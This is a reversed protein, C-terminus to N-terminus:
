HELSGSLESLYLQSFLPAVSPTVVKAYPSWTVPHEGKQAFCDNIDEHATQQLQVSQVLQTSQVLNASFPHIAITLEALVCKTPRRLALVNGRAFSAGIM